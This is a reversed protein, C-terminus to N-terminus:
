KANDAWQLSNLKWIGNQRNYKLLLTKDKEPYDCAVDAAAADQRTVRWHIFKDYSGGVKVFGVAVQRILSETYAKRSLEVKEISNYTDAVSFGFTNLSEWDILGAVSPKGEVLLRFVNRYHGLGGRSSPNFFFVGLVVAIVIGTVVLVGSYRSTNENSM